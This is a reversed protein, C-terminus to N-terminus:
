VEFPLGEVDDAALLEAEGLAQGRYGGAAIGPSGFTIM